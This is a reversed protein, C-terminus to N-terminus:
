RKVDGVFVPGSARMAEVRRVEGAHKPVYTSNSKWLTVTGRLHKPEYTGATKSESM